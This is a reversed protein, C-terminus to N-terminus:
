PMTIERCGFQFNLRRFLSYSGDLVSLLASLTASSGYVKSTLKNDEPQRSAVDFAGADVDDFLVISRPPICSMATLFTGSQQGSEMKVVFVNWGCDWAAAYILSTKFVGMPGSLLVGMHGREFAANVDHSPAVLVTSGGDKEDSFQKEWKAQTRKTFERFRTVFARVSTSIAPTEKSTLLFELEPLSRRPVVCSPKWTSNEWTQFFPVSMISSQGLKPQMIMCARALLEMRVADCAVGTTPALSLSVSCSGQTAHQVGGSGTSFKVVVRGIAPGCDLMATCLEERPKAFAVPLGVPVPAKATSFMVNDVGGILGLLRQTVVSDAPVHLTSQHDEKMLLEWWSRRAWSLVSSLAAVASSGGVIATLLSVSGPSPPAMAGAAAAPTKGAESANLTGTELAASCERALHALKAETKAVAQLLRHRGFFLLAVIGTCTLIRRGTTAAFVNHVVKHLVIPPPLTYWPLVKWQVGDVVIVSDKSLATSTKDQRAEHHHRKPKSTKVHKQIM